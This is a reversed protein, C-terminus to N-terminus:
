RILCMALRFSDLLDFTNTQDKELAMDEDSQAIRLETMLEPFAQSDIAVKGKDIWLKLNGLMAKHKISFNVPIVQMYHHLEDPRGDQRAKEILREYHPYDRTQYKVSRIFGSQSGDIFVRNSENMLNYKSILDAAHYVMQQTSQNAFQKSYIVHVLDDVIELVTFATASSGFGPDIGLAKPTSVNYPVDRYQKGLQECVQLSQELFVNGTGVAYFLEFERKFYPQQKEKEIEEPNYIKNLGLTYHLNYKKFISNQDRDIQEFLDGPKYPTSVMVIYPNSKPRYAECVARVEDQQGPPFFAAEDIFIFKVNTYGRSSSITHSPFAQIETGNVYIIPGVQKCDIGLKSIFLDHLRDILNEALNIRPGTVIHYRCGNYDNNRVALWAMYRLLLETIGLGRAKKIFINKTNDLEEVLKMEYDFIPKEIGDKKPLGVTHNFCCFGRTRIDEAKHKDINKIWFPKNYFIAFRESNLGILEERNHCSDNNYVFKHKEVFKRLDKFTL